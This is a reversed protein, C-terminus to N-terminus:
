HVPLWSGGYNHRLVTGDISVVGPEGVVQPDGEVAVPEEPVLYLLDLRRESKILGPDVQRFRKSWGQGRLRARQRALLSAWELIIDVSHDLMPPVVNRMAMIPGKSPAEVLRPAASTRPVLEVVTADRSGSELVRLAIPRARDKQPPLAGLFHSIFASAPPASSPALSGYCPLGEVPPIMVMKWRRRSM